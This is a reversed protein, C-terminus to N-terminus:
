EGGPESPLNALTAGPPYVLHFTDKDLWNEVRVRGQLLRDLENIMDDVVKKVQDVHEPLISYPDRPIRNLRYVLDTERVGMERPFQNWDLPEIRRTSFARYYAQRDNKPHVFDNRLRVLERFHSWPYSSEDFSVSPLGSAFRPLLKWKEELSFRDEREMIFSRLPESLFEALARNVLAELSFVYLLIATRSLPVRDFSRQLEPAKVQNHLFQADSYLYYFSNITTSYVFVQETM